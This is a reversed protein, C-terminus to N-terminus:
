SYVSGGNLQVLFPASPTVKGVTMCGVVGLGVFASSTIVTCVQIFQDEPDNRVWPVAQGDERVRLYKQPHDLEYDDKCVIRGDWRKKLEDSKFEFGCTDCIANWCGPKYYNDMGFRPM